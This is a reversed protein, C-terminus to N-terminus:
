QKGEPEREHYLDYGYREQYSYADASTKHTMRNLVVGIVNVRVRQLMSVVAAVAKRRTKGAQAIILVGDAANAM